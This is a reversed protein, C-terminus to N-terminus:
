ALDDDVLRTAEAIATQMQHAIHVNEAPITITISPMRDGTVRTSIGEADIWWPFEEGDITLAYERRGVQRVEIDKALRPTNDTGM